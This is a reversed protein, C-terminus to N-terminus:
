ISTGEIINNIESYIQEISMKPHMTLVGFNFKKRYKPQFFRAPLTVEKWNECINSELGQPSLLYSAFVINKIDNDDSEVLADRYMHASALADNLGSNIRYKADFVILQTEQKNNEYIFSIDPEMTRSYSGRGSKEIWYEKYRKKFFITKKGFTTEVCSKKITLGNNNTKQFLNSIDVINGPEHSSFARVIRLYCWFEYLDFTRALPLDIFDGYVRAIGLNIEKYILFFQYYDPHQIFIPSAEVPVPIDSVSHFFPNSLLVQLKHSLIICRNAWEKLARKSESGDFQNLLNSSVLQLWSKWFKLCYKIARNEYIDHGDNKISVLLKEPLFGRLKHTIKSNNGAKIIKSRSYSKIIDNGRVVSAKYYPVLANENRLIKQPGDIIKKVVIEIQSIKTRLFELRAIPPIERSFGREINIKANSLNFLALSDELIQLIMSDFDSKTLKHLAPNLVVEFHFKRRQQLHLQFDIKGAYFGPEWKWRATTRNPPKLAELGIYDAFLEASEVFDTNQLDLYYTKTEQVFFDPFREANPWIEFGNKPDHKQFIVLKQM